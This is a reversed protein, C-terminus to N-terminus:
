SALPKNIFQLTPVGIPPPPARANPAPSGPAPYAEPVNVLQEEYILLLKPLRVALPIKVFQIALVNENPLIAFPWNLL